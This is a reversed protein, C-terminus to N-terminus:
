KNMWEVLEQRDVISWSHPHREGNTRYGKNKTEILELQQWNEAKLDKVVEQIVYANTREYPTQRNEQWWTSDPETYFRLRCNKLYPVSTYDKKHTFPSVEQINRLLSDKGFREDFYRIIFKPEALREEDFDPNAVDAVASEYLAYLDIPSDVMFVGKPAIAAESKILYNSVALAVNGGISMGGIFTIKSAINNKELISKLQESQEKATAEEIWISRNFNMMLVSIDSACALNVIDFEQKTYAADTGGGPYLILTAKTNKAQYLTYAEAKKIVELCLQDSSNTNM